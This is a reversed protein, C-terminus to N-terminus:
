KMGYKHKIYRIATGPAPPLNWSMGEFMPDLPAQIMPDKRMIVGSTPSVAPNRRTVDNRPVHVEHPQPYTQSDHPNFIEGALNGVNESEVIPAVHSVDISQFRDRVNKRGARAGTERVGKLTDLDPIEARLRGIVHRIASPGLRNIHELSGWANVIASRYEPWYQMTVMHPVTLAPHSVEFAYLLRGFQDRAPSGLSRVTPSMTLIEYIVM